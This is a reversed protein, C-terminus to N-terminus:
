INQVNRWDASLWSNIVREADNITILNGDIRPKLYDMMCTEIRKDTYFAQARFGILFSECEKTNLFYSLHDDRNNTEEKQLGTDRQAIHHLEHAIVSYLEDRAIGHNKVWSGKKIFIVIDISPECSSNLGAQAYIDWDSSSDKEIRNVTYSWRVTQFDDYSVNIPYVWQATDEYFSVSGKLNKLITDGILTTMENYFFNPDNLNV